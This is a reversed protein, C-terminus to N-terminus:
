KIVIKFVKDLNIYEKKGDEKIALWRGNQEAIGDYSHKAGNSDIIVFKGKIKM